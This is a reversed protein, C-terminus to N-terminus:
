EEGIRLILCNDAAVGIIDSLISINFSFLEEQWCLL